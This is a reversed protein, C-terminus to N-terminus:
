VLGKSNVSRMYVPNAASLLIKMALFTTFRQDKKLSKIRILRLQTQKSISLTIIHAESTIVRNRQSFKIRVMIINQGCLLSWSRNM